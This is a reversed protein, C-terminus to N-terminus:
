KLPKLVAERRRQPQLYKKILAQLSASTVEKIKDPHELIYRWDGAISEFYSLAGAIDNNSQLDFYWQSLINKKARQLEAASVGESVLQDLVQQFAKTVTKPSVGQRIKAYVFFLNDLRSGPVAPSCDIQQVLRKEEVLSRYLRSTPGECLIQNLVDFAYDEEHPLSPKLYGIIMAPSAKFPVLTQKAATPEPESVQPSPPKPGKPLKGLTERLLKKTKAINIDGVIAGVMNAPVYYQQYFEKLQNASLKMLDVEYGITPRQYPSREFAMAVFAEYLTGFPSDDVRMRREEQVVDREQYFERFVPDQLRSSELAAWLKLKNAPLTVFYSTLDQSTTANLGTAGNREYIKSFEGAVVYKAAEQLLQQFEKKLARRAKGSAQMKKAHLIEIKELLVREAEPQRTGIQSTGKFAMHELLHAIGTQGPVEDIGGVKVRLYASFVPATPRRLLLFKMGNDLTISEVSSLLPNGSKALSVSSLLLVFLSLIIKFRFKGM